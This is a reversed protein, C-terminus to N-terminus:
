SRLMRDIHFPRVSSVAEPWGQTACLPPAEMLRVDVAKFCTTCLQNSVVMRLVAEEAQDCYRLTMGQDLRKDRAADEGVNRKEETSVGM